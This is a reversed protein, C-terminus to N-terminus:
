QKDFFSSSFEAVRAKDGHCDIEISERRLMELIAANLFIYAIANILVSAYLRVDYIISVMGLMIIVAAVGTCVELCTKRLDLTLSTLCVLVSFVCHGIILVKSTPNYFEDTDLLNFDFIMISLEIIWYVAMSIKYLKRERLINIQGFISVFMLIFGIAEVIYAVADVVYCIEGTRRNYAYYIMCIIIFVVFSINALLGLLVTRKINFFGKM